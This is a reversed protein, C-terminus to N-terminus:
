GNHLRYRNEDAVVGAFPRGGVNQDVAKILVATNRQRDGRQHRRLQLLLTQEAPFPVGFLARGKGERPEQNGVQHAVLSPRNEHVAVHETALVDLGQPILLILGIRRHAHLVFVHRILCHFKEAFHLAGVRLLVPTRQHQQVAAAAGLERGVVHVRCRTKFKVAEMPEFSIMFDTRDLTTPIVQDIHLCRGFREVSRRHQM